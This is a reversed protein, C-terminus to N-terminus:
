PRIDQLAVAAAPFSALVEGLADIGTEHITGTWTVTQPLLSAAGGDGPQGVPKPRAELGARDVM